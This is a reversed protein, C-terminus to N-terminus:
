FNLRAGIAFTTVDSGLGVDFTGAVSENFWYALLGNIATQGDGTTSHMLEIGGELQRGVYGRLGAALVLGSDSSGNDPSVSEFSVSAYMDIKEDFRTHYGGGAQVNTSGCIDGSVDSFSARAYWGDQIDLSGYINPGDQDCNYKDLDQFMYRAGVHTYSVAPVRASYNNSTRNNQAHATTTAFAALMSGLLLCSKVAKM